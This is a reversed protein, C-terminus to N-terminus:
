FSVQLGVRSRRRPGWSVADRFRGAPNPRSIVGDGDLDIQDEDEQKTLEYREPDQIQELNRRNFLNRVELFVQLKSSGLAQIDKTIM